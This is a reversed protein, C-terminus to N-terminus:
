FFSMRVYVKDYRRNRDTTTPFVQRERAVDSTRSTTSLRSFATEMPTKSMSLRQVNRRNELTYTQIVRRRQVFSVDARSVNRRSRRQSTQQRYSDNPGFVDLDRRDINRVTTIRRNKMEMTRMQFDRRVLEQSFHNLEKRQQERNTNRDLGHREQRIRATSSSLFRKDRTLSETQDRTSRETYVIDPQRRLKRLGDDDQHTRVRMNRSLDKTRRHLTRTLTPTQERSKVTNIREATTSRTERRQGNDRVTSGTETRRRTEVASGQMHRKEKRNEVRSGMVRRATVRNGSQYSRQAEQFNRNRTEEINRTRSDRREDNAQRISPLREMSRRDQSQRRNLDDRSRVNRKVPIINADRRASREQRIRPEGAVVSRERQVEVVRRDASARARDLTIRTAPHVSRVSESTMQEAKDEYSRQEVSLFRRRSSTNRDPKERRINDLRRQKAISRSHESRRRLETVARSEERNAERRIVGTNVRRVNDTQRSIAERRHRVEQRREFSTVSATRKSATEKARTEILTGIDQCSALSDVSDETTTMNQLQCQAKTIDEDTNLIHYSYRSLDNDSVM